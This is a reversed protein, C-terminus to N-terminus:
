GRATAMRARLIQSNLISLELVQTGNERGYAAMVKRFSQSLRPGYVKKQPTLRSLINIKLTGFNHTPATVGNCGGADPGSKPSFHM